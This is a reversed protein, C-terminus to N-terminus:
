MMSFAQNLLNKVNDTLIKKYQEIKFIIIIDGKGGNNNPMGKGHIFHQQNNQIIGLTSTDIQINSDFHDIDILKGLFSEKISLNVDIFLNNGERRFNKYQKIHVELILEIENDINLVLKGRDEIGAPIKIDLVKEMIIKGKNGCKVCNSVHEKKRSGLGRCVNCEASTTQSMFGMQIIKTIRGKGNCVSCIETCETCSKNDRIRFKKQVGRYAEELSIEITMFQRKTNQEQRYFPHGRPFANGGFFQNFINFPDFNSDSDQGNSSKSQFNDDGMMDYQEREQPNSLINYAESIKQFTEVDGGKDPHHKIALKKYAKKIDDQSAQKSVGLLQYFKHIM